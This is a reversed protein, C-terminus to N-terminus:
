IRIERVHSLQGAHAEIADQEIQANRRMLDIRVIAAKRKALANTEIHAHSSVHRPVGRGEQVFLVLRRQGLDELVVAVLRAAGAPAAFGAPRPRRARETGALGEGAGKGGGGAWAPAGGIKCPEKLGYADRHVVLERSQRLRKRLEAIPQFRLPHEDYDRVVR